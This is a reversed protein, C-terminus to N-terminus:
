PENTESTITHGLYAIETAGFICKDNTEGTVKQGLYAIETAEFVCKDPSVNKQGPVSCGTDQEFM